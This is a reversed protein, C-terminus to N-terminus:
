RRNLSPDTAVAREIEDDLNDRLQTLSLGAGWRQTLADALAAVSDLESAETLGEGDALGRGDALQAEDAEEADSRESAGLRKPAGREPAGGGLGGGASEEPEEARDLDDAGQLAASLAEALAADLPLQPSSSRESALQAAATPPGEDATSREGLKSDAGQLPEAVEFSLLRLLERLHPPCAPNLAIAERVPRQTGWRPHALLQALLAGRQPRASAVKLIEALRARPNQLLHALTKPDATKLLQEILRPHSGRAASRREGLTLPRPRGPMFVPAEPSQEEAERLPAALFLRALAGAELRRLEAGLALRRPLPLTQLACALSPLLARADGSGSRLAHQFGVLLAPTESAELLARWREQRMAEEALPLLSSLADPLASKEQLANEQLAHPQPEQSRTLAGEDASM